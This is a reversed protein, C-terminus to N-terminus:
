AQTVGDDRLTKALAYLTTSPSDAARAKEMRHDLTTSQEQEADQGGGGGV